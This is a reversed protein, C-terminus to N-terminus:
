RLTEILHLIDDLGRRTAEAGREIAEDARHFDYLGIDGVRPGVAYDPPDGAMRARTLRDQMINYSEMMVGMMGPLGVDDDGFMRLRFRERLAQFFGPEDDTERAAHAAAAEPLADVPGPPMAHVVTTGRGFVDSHLNVAIVVRAGLARCASVPVPNVLAGDVLWRGGIEVPQFVGPLAFSARLADVLDGSRLWIEHGTGLETSVCLFAREMEDIRVSGLDRKLLRVLRRGGMLGASGLMPDILGLVKRRNLSRAFDEIQDLKGELYAAGVVAGISTGTVIDPRIGAEELVRLAGIHAWGRAAGGGLALGIRPTFDKSWVPADTPLAHPGPASETAPM